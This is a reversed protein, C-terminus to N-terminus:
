QNTRTAPTRHRNTPKTIDAMSKTQGCVNEVIKSTLFENKKQKPEIWGYDAISRIWYIFLTQRLFFKPKSRCAMHDVHLEPLIARHEIDYVYYCLSLLVVLGQNVSIVVNTTLFLLDGHCRNPYDHNEFHHASVLNAMASDMGDHEVADLADHQIVAFM